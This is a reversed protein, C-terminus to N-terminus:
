RRMAVIQTVLALLDDVDDGRRPARFALGDADGGGSTPPGPASGGPVPVDPAPSGPSPDDDPAGPDLVAGDFAAHAYLGDSILVIARAVVPDGVEDLVARTWADHAGDLAERARPYAGQALRSVALYVLEFEGDVVTSTRLLYDVPGAPAARMVAVDAATLERLHDVLGDVLADKSGFHYLLGGKSVGAREAVAELTAAREGHEVLLAAFARLVKPRAAPPPPM